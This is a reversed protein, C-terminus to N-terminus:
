ELPVFSWDLSYNEVSLCYLGAWPEAPFLPNYGGGCHTQLYPFGPEGSGAPRRPRGPVLQGSGQPPVQGIM